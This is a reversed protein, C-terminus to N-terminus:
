ELIYKKLRKHVNIVDNQRGQKDKKALFLGSSLFSNGTFNRQSIVIKQKPDILLYQGGYGDAWITQNDYDLWWLDSYDEFPGFREGRFSSYPKTSEAIWDSSVIQTDNWKGNQSVMVGIRALDRASLFIYYAQYDSNTKNSLPWPRGYVINTSAFDEMGLPKALNEDMFEGITKGTKQELIAGLVNFDFNNYFYFEGPKYEERKPRNNKTYDTEAEAPLYVGSRAMLLDRITGSKELQTLPTKSENIGLEELTEDLRLFEKDKAIGILISLVSKRVSHCNILKETDGMEFILKEDKMAVLTQANKSSDAIFTKLEDKETQSLINSKELTTAYPREKQWVRPIISYIFFAFILIGLVRFIAKAKKNIKM